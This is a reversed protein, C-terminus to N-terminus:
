ASTTQQCPNLGKLRVNRAPPLQFNKYSYKRAEFPELELKLGFRQKCWLFVVLIYNSIECRATLNEKSCKQMDAFIMLIDESLQETRSKRRSDKPLGIM